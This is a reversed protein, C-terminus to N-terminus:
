FFGRFCGFFPGLGFVAERLAPVFIRRKDSDVRLAM